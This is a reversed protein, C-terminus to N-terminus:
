HVILNELFELSNKEIKLVLEDELIRKKTAEITKIVLEEEPNVAVKLGLEKDEIM